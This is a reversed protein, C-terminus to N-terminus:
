PCGALKYLQIAAAAAEQATRLQIKYFLMKHADSFGLKGKPDQLLYMADYVRDTTWQVATKARTCTNNPTEVRWTVDWVVYSDTEENAFSQKASFCLIFMVLSCLFSRM